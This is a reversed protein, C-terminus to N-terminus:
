KMEKIYAYKRKPIVRYVTGCKECQANVNVVLGWLFASLFSGCKCNFYVVSILMKRFTTEIRVKQM